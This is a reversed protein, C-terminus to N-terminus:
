YKFSFNVFAKSVKIKKHFFKAFLTQIKALNHALIQASNQM